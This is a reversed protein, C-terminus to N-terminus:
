GARCGCQEVVRPRPCKEDGRGGSLSKQAAVDADFCEWTDELLGAPLVGNSFQEMSDIFDGKKKLPV